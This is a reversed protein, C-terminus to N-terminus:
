KPESKKRLDISFFSLGRSGDEGSGEGPGTLHELEYKSEKRM